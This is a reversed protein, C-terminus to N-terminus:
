ATMREFTRKIRREVEANISSQSIGYIMLVQNLMIFVDAVEEQVAKQYIEKGNVDKIILEALETLEEVAKLKQADKGYHNLIANYKDKTM